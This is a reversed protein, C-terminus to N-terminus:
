GGSYTPVCEALGLEIATGEEISHVWVKKRRFVLKSTTVGGTTTAVIEATYVVEVQDAEPAILYNVGSTTQGIIVWKDALVKGFYNHATVSEGTATEYGPSGGYIGISASTNKAWDASTRGLRVSGGSAGSGIRLLCWKGNGTGSEKWLIVAPGSTASAFASTSGPVPVAFGHSADTVNIKAQVVGAIAARGFKGAAIPELSVVFAGSAGTTPLGGVIAPDSQFQAVSAGTSGAPAAVAGNIALVGWLGVASGANNKVYIQHNLASPGQVGSAERGGQEGLVIDAAQQARNWARASIAGGIKMGKEIRGNRTM